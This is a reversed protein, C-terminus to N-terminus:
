TLAAKTVKLPMGQPNILFVEGHEDVLEGLKAITKINSWNYLKPEKVEFREKIEAELTQKKM